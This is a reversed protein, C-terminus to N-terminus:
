LEQKGLLCAAQCHLLGLLCAQGLLWPVSVWHGLSSASVSWLVPVWHGLSSASVPWLVPVWHGLACLGCCEGGRLDLLCLGRCALWIGLIILKSQQSGLDFLQLLLQSSLRLRGPGRARCGEDGRLVELGAARTVGCCRSRAFTWGLGTGLGADVEAFCAGTASVATSSSSSSCSTSSSPFPLTM